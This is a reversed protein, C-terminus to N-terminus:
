EYYLARYVAAAATVRRGYDMTETIEVTELFLDTPLNSRTRWRRIRNMGGNYSILALLPDEMREYLFALYSAGIHINAAPNLLDIGSNEHVNEDGGDVAGGRQSWDPGGQRRIRTATEEATAPMLQTLGIAGVRSVANPDFASETRILGFLIAPEIGTEWAYQGVLEKFPRPYSLELDRRRIQYGEQKSYLSVLRMSLQYQGATGLAEALRRLEDASLNNEEARIFAPAFEEAGHEFFGLLSKM